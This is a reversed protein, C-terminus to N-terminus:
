PPSAAARVALNEDQRQFSINLFYRLMRCKLIESSPNSKTIFLLTASGQWLEPLWDCEFRPGTRRRTCCQRIYSRTDLCQSIPFQYAIRKQKIRNTILSVGTLKEKIIPLSTTFYPGLPYLKRALWPIIRSIQKDKFSSIIDKDSISLYVIRIFYHTTLYIM